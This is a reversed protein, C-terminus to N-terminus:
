LQINKQRMYLHFINMFVNPRSDNYIRKNVISINTEYKLEFKEKLKDSM